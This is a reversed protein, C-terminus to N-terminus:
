VGGVVVAAVAVGIDHGIGAQRGTGGGGKM